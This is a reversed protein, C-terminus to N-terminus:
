LKNNNKFLVDMTLKSADIKKLFKPHIPYFSEVKYDKINQIFVVNEDKHKGRVRFLGSLISCKVIAGIEFDELKNNENVELKMLEAIHEFINVIEPNILEKKPKKDDM